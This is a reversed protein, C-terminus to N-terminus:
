HKHAYAEAAAESKDGRTLFALAHGLEHQTTTQVENLKGTSVTVGGISRAGKSSTRLKTVGLVHGEASSSLAARPDLQIKVGAKKLRAIDAKPLKKIARQVEALAEPKIKDAGLLVIGERTRVAGSPVKRKAATTNAAPAVPAGPAGPAAAAGGGVVPVPAQQARPAAFAAYTAAAQAPSAPMPLAGSAFTAPGQTVPGGAPAASPAQGYLMAQAVM